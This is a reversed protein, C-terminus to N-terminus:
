EWLTQSLKEIEEKRRQTEKPDITYQGDIQVIVDGEKAEGPLHERKLELRERNELELIAIEGEFRDIIGKM